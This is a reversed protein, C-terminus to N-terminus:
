TPRKGQTQPRWKNVSAEIITGKSCLAALLIQPATNLAEEFRRLM